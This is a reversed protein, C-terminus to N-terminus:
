SYQDRRHFSRFGQGKPCTSLCEMLYSNSVINPLNIPVLPTNAGQGNKQRGQGTGMHVYLCVSTCACLVHMWAAASLSWIINLLFKWIPWEELQSGELFKIETDERWEPSKIIWRPQWATFPNPILQGTELLIHHRNNYAFCLTSLPCIDFPRLVCLWCKNVAKQIGPMNLRTVHM